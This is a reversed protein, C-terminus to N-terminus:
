PMEGRGFRYTAASAADSCRGTVGHKSQLVLGTVTGIEDSDRWRWSEVDDTPLQCIIDCDPLRLLAM